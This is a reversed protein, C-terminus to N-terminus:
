ACLLTQLFFTLVAVITKVYLLGKEERQTRQAEAHPIEEEKRLKNVNFLLYCLLLYLTSELKAVKIQYLIKYIIGNLYGTLTM